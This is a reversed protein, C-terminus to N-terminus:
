ISRGFEALLHNWPIMLSRIVERHVYNCNEITDEVKECNIMAGEDDRENFLNLSIRM